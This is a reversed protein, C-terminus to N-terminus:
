FALEVAAYVSVPPIAIESFSKGRSVIQLTKLTRGDLSVIRASRCSDSPAISATEASPRRSYNILHVVGQGGDKSRAYHVGLLGGNYLRLVDTRRGVLIRVESALVWPDDWATMPVAVRGRGVTRIEYGPIPSPAMQGGWASIVASKPAILLGGSKVFAHLQTAVGGSPPQEDIYVAAEELKLVTQKPCVRFLLNRRAALNLFERGMFENPGTFDSIVSLKAHPEFTDWQHHAEFFRAARMMRSWRRKAAADGALVSQAFGDDLTIVWRAGYAAPEAVALEYAADDIVGEKPPGVDVWLPRDPNLARALQISWGNADVWPAGTPGSDAGEGRRAMKVSPWVPDPLLVASSAVDEKSLVKLGRSRLAGAAAAPPDLVCSVPTDNLMGAASEDKWASPWRMPVPLGPPITPMYVQHSEISDSDRRGRASM